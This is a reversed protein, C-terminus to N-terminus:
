SEGRLTKAKDQMNRLGEAMKKSCVPCLQMRVDLSLGDPDIGDLILNHWGPPPENKPGMHSEECPPRDCSWQMIEKIAM